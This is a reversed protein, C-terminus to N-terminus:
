PQVYITVKGDPSSVGANPIMQWVQGSVPVSGDPFLSTAPQSVSTVTWGGNRLASTAAPALQEVIDPLPATPPPNGPTAEVVVQAGAPVKSGPAPSQAVVQGPLSGPQSVDIRKLKLGAQKVRGTAVNINTGTLTPMTVNKPSSGIQFISDNPAPVTTSTPPPTTVVTIGSSGSDPLTAQGFPAPPLGALASDMFEKWVPAAMDAGYGPLVRLRGIQGHARSDPQSYGVWVGTVLNPTFGIFWADTKSDTTGTKGASPRGTLGGIKAATGSKLVGEMASVVEDAKAAELVKTQVHNQEYLVTGDARVVKTVMTPPVFIGRNAFTDYAATMDLVTNNNTGLTESPVTTFKGGTNIGMKAAYETVKKPGVRPDAILNAFCTNASHILCQALSASGLNDGKLTWPAYGAIHVTTQGPSPYRANIDIGSALAATLTIAKFTSGTQRGAGVALNVQAYSHKPNDDFYDYGGYMAKVFGTSPEIAVMGVDPNSTGQHPYKDEAAKEIKAQMALDITTYIRLGGNNLLDNREAATKGFAPNNRIFRKVEEVFHAAPYHSAAEAQAKPIVQAGLPTAKAQLWQADTIYGQTHMKDLVTNRRKTTTVANSYPDYRSPAQIIGALLAAEPLTLQAAPHGFYRESAVEVGYARNGFFITNLYQELIWDKTHTREVQLALNAEEIKRDLTRQPSLLVTKVYQQTITSGGESVGGAQSNSKAARAIGRLDIGGHEWFREDETAVVANQMVSPIQSLPIVIRNEDGELRTIETGDAAYIITQQQSIPVLTPINRDGIGCATAVLVLALAVPAPLSRRRVPVGSM